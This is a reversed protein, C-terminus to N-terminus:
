YRTKKKKMSHQTVGWHKRTQKKFLFFLVKINFHLRCATNFPEIFPFSTFFTTGVARPTGLRDGM